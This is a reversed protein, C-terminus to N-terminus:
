PALKGAPYEGPTVHYATRLENGRVIVHVHGDRNSYFRPMRKVSCEHFVFDKVKDESGGGGPVLIVRPSLVRMTYPRICMPTLGHHPFSLVDIRNLEEEHRKVVTGDVWDGTFLFRHSQYYMVVNLSHKNFEGSLDSEEPGVCLLEVPGAQVRDGDRLQRYVGHQLPGFREPLEASTGFVITNEGGYRENIQPINYAHDDHWHTVLHIDVHDIGYADLYGFLRKSNSNHISTNEGCDVLMVFDGCTVLYCDTSGNSIQHLRLEPAQPVPTMLTIEEAAAFGVLLCLIALATLFKSLHRM